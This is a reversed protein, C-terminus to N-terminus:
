GDDVWGELDEPGLGECLEIVTQCQELDMDGIHPDEIGMEKALLRYAASRYRRREDGRGMPLWLADLAKHAAIRAKRVAKPAPAGLPKDTGPHCGVLGDCDPFRSCGYFRGHVSNRLIMPSGCYCTPATVVM